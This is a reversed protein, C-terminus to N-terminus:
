RGAQRSGPGASRKTDLKKKFWEVEVGLQECAMGLLTENMVNELQTQGLAQQFQRIQKKLAAVQNAENPKEM